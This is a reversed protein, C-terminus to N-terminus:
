SETTGVQVAVMSGPGSRHNGTVLGTADNYLKPWPRRVPEGKTLPHHHVVVMTTAHVVYTGHSRGPKASECYRTYSM